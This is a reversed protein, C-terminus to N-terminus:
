DIRRRRVRTMTPIEENMYNGIHYNFIHEKFWGSTDRNIELFAKSLKEYNPSDLIAKSSKYKWDDKDLTLVASNLNGLISWAYIYFADSKVTKLKDYFSVDKAVLLNFLEYGKVESMFNFEEEAQELTYIESDICRELYQEALRISGNSNQSILVLVEPAIPIKQEPDILDLQKILAEGVDSAPLAKFRYVQGRSLTAKDFASEDMTCLIFITNKRKKELLNLTAGKSGKALNQAEDIIIVNKRGGFLPDTSALEELNIIDSKEMESSKFFHVDCNFTENLISKCSSCKWCPEFYEGNNQLDSCNVTAAIVLASTTKGTGTDGTMFMVDPYEFKLDKAKAIFTKVNNKHGIIDKFYRPRSDKAIM